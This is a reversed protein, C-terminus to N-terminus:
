VICEVCTVLSGWLPAQSASHTRLAGKSVSHVALQMRMRQESQRIRAPARSRSAPSLINSRNRVGGVPHSHFGGGRARCAEVSNV